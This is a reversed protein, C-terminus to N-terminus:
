IIFYMLSYHTFKIFRREFKYIKVNIKFSYNVREITIYKSYAM